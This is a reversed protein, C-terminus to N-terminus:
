KAPKRLEALLGSLWPGAQSLLTERVRGARGQLLAPISGRNGKRKRM